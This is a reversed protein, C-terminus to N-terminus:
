LKLRVNPLLINPVTPLSFLTFLPQDINFNSHNKCVNARLVFSLLISSVETEEANENSNNDVNKDGIEDENEIDEEQYKINEMSRDQPNCINSIVKDM